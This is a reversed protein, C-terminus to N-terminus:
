MHNSKVVKNPGLTGSNNVIKIGHNLNKKYYVLYNKNEKTGRINKLSNKLKKRQM